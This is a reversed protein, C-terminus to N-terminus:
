KNKKLWLSIAEELAARATKGLALAKMRLQKWLDPDIRVNIMKSDKKKDM